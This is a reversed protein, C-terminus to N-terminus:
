NWVRTQKIMQVSLYAKRACRTWMSAKRSQKPATSQQEREIDGRVDQFATHLVARPDWFSKSGTTCHLWRINRSEQIRTVNDGISQKPYILPLGGRGLAACDDVASPLVSHREPQQYKDRQM